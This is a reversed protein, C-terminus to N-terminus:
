KGKVFTSRINTVIRNYEQQDADLLRKVEDKKSDLYSDFRNKLVKKKVENLDKKTAEEEMKKIEKLLTSKETTHAKKNEPSVKTASNAHKRKKTDDDGVEEKGETLEKRMEEMKEKDADPTQGKKQNEELNQTEQETDKGTENSAQKAEYAGETMAEKPSGEGAAKSTDLDDGGFLNRQVRGLTKDKDPKGNLGPSKTNTGELNYKAGFEELLLDPNINDKDPREKALEDENGEEQTEGRPEKNPSRKPNAQEGEGTGDTNKPQTPTNLVADPKLPQFDKFGVQKKWKSYFDLMLTREDTEWRECEFNKHRFSFCHTCQREQRAYNVKYAEGKIIIFNMEMHLRMNVVLDGNPYDSGKWTKPEPKSLVEGNYSLTHLIEAESVRKYIGEITVRREYQNDELIAHAWIQSRGMRESQPAPQYLLLPERRVDTEKVWDALNKKLVVLLTPIAPTPKILAEVDESTINFHTLINEVEEFNCLLNYTHVGRAMPGNREGSKKLDIQLVNDEVKKSQEVAKLPTEPEGGEVDDDDDENVHVGNVCISYDDGFTGLNPSDLLKTLNRKNLIIRHYTDGGKRLVKFDRFNVDPFLSIMKRQLGYSSSVKELRFWIGLDCTVLQNEDLGKSIQNYRQYNLFDFSEMDTHKSHLSSNVCTAHCEEVPQVSWSAASVLKNILTKVM